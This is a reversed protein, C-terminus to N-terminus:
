QSQRCSALWLLVKLPASAQFPAIRLMPLPLGLLQSKVDPDPLREIQEPSVLEVVVDLWAESLSEVEVIGVGRVELKGATAAPCRAAIRGGRRDLIVQDDAILRAQLVREMWVHQLGICRLALDSKGAGPPGTLLAARGDLAICTAHVLSTAGDM